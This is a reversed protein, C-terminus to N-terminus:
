FLSFMAPTEMVSDNSMRVYQCRFYHKYKQWIGINDDGATQM